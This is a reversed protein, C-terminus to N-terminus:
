VKILCTSGVHYVATTTGSDSRMAPAMESFIATKKECRKIVPALRHVDSTCLSKPCSSALGYATIRYRGFRLNEAYWVPTTDSM